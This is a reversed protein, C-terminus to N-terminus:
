AVRDADEASPMLGINQWNASKPLTGEFSRLQSHPIRPNTGIAPGGDRMKRAAEVMIRRFEVVAIDSAGLREKTRDSRTQWARSPDADPILVMLKRVGNTIEEVVPKNRWEKFQERYILDNAPVRAFQKRFLKEGM